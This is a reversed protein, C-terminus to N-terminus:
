DPDVRLGVGGPRHILGHVALSIRGRSGDPSALPPTSDRVVSVVRSGDSLPAISFANVPTRTNSMVCTCDPGEQVCSIAQSPASTMLISGGPRPSIVRVWNRSRGFRSLRYKVM